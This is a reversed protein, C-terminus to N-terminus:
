PSGESVPRRRVFAILEPPVAGFALALAAYVAAGIAALLVAPVDPVLALCLAPGAALAMRGLRRLSPRARPDHRVLASLYGLALVTEGALTAWAAGRAGYAAGLSLTLCLSTVLAVLNVILLARHLRLSILMFGFSALVFSALMAIGQVRLVSVAPEFKPLGAVVDIIPRAGLVTVVAFFGGSVAAVDFVRQGAFALREDDDRAARALVPFASSVLLGAISVVVIFVRFSANFYGAQQQTSVLWLLVIALYAYLTVVATAVSFVATDRLLARWASPDLAPAIPTMRRVMVGTVLLLLVGVPVTVGLLAVLGAGAAILVLLLATTAAQRLLELASVRGLILHAQLPIQLTGAYLTIVMGVSAIATGAVMPRDYGAILAFAVAALSGAITIVLRLGLLDRVIRNREAGTRTAYERVGLTTMGAESLASVITVLAFVTGYRGFDGPGLYRTLFAASVLAMASGLGYSVIRMASGRIVLAGARGSDLVDGGTDTM